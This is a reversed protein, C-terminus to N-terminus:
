HRTTDSGATEKPLGRWSRTPGVFSGVGDIMDVEQDTLLEVWNEHIDSTIEKIREALVEPDARGPVNTLGLNVANRV